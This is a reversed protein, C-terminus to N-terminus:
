GKKRGVVLQNLLLFDTRSKRLFGEIYLELPLGIPSIMFKRADVVEFNSATLLSSLDALTFGQNHDEGKVHGILSAIADFFPVPTTLIAIGGNRLVRHSEKVLIEPDLVHEIVATVVVADFSNPKFPLKTADGALLNIESNMNSKLLPLSYDLGVCRAGRLHEHVYSLMLADATGIDLLTIPSSDYFNKLIGIVEESRRRLRYKHARSHLRKHHYEVDMVGKMRKVGKTYTLNTM